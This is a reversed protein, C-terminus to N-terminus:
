NTICVSGAICMYQLKTLKESSDLQALPYMAGISAFVDFCTMSTAIKKFFFNMRNLREDNAKISSYSNLMISQSKLVSKDKISLKSTSRGCNPDIEDVLMSEINTPLVDMPEDAEVDLSDLHNNM